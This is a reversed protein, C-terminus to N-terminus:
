RIDFIQLGTGGGAVYATNGSVFVDRAVGAGTAGAMTPNTPDSVDIVSLGSMTSAMFVKDGQVQVRRPRNEPAGGTVTGCLLGVNLFPPIAPAIFPNLIWARFTNTPVAIPPCSFIPAVSLEGVSAARQYARPCLHNADYFGVVTPNAPNSIDVISLGGPVGLAGAYGAVYAYRGQVRVGLEFRAWLSVEGLWTPNAPNSVDVIRLMGSFAYDVNSGAAGGVGVTGYVAGTPSLTPVTATGNSLGIPPVPSIFGAGAVYGYGVYATKGDPSLCVSFANNFAFNGAFNGPPPGAYTLSGKWVPPSISVDYIQLGSPGGAVYAYKGRVVVDQANAGTVGPLGATIGPAPFPATTSSIFASALTTSLTSPAGPNSVNAILLGGIGDAVYARTGQTNVAVGAPLPRPIAPAPNCPSAGVPQPFTALTGLLVPYELNSVDVIRLGAGRVTLYAINNRVVVDEISDECTSGIWSSAYDEITDGLYGIPDLHVPLNECRQAFAPAFFGGTSFSAFM